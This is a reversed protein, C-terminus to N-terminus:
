MQLVSVNRYSHIAECCETYQKGSLHLEEKIEKPFYGESHMKLVERQLGSLRDLYLRMRRSYGEESNEFIEREITFDDAIMDGLTIDDEEGVPTDISVSMRDARRKERNRKTMETKIRRSLCSFLFADFSQAHDYRKMVDAFVENALSYFDEIDKDLIGGFKSLIKDVMGHLKKANEAYYAELIQDM